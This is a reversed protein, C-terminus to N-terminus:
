EPSGSAVKERALRADRVKIVAEWILKRDIKGKGPLKHLILKIKKPKHKSRKTTPM